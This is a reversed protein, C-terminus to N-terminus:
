EVIEVMVRKGERAALARTVTRIARAIRGHKGIIKGMDDPAVTVEIIVADDGQIERVGVQDPNDVLSSALFLVLDRLNSREGVPRQM